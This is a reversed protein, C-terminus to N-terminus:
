AFLWRFTGDPTLHYHGNENELLEEGILTTMQAEVAPNITTFRQELEERTFGDAYKLQNFVYGTQAVEDNISHVEAITAEPNTPDQLYAQLDQTNTYAIDNNCSTAGLGLGVLQAGEALAHAFKSKFHDRKAFHGPIYQEYGYSELREIAKNFLVQQDDASLVGEGVAFLPQLTIHPVEIANLARLNQMLKIESQDPIGITLIVDVNERNFKDLFLLADQIHDRKYPRQLAILETPDLTDALVSIRNIGAANWGTLSPTGITHPLATISIESHPDVTFLSKIHAILRNLGDPSMISPSPGSLRIAVINGMIDPAVATAEAELAALYEMRTAHDGVLQFDSSFHLKESVFPIRIDLVLMNTETM